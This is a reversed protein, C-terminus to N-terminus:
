STEFTLDLEIQRKNVRVQPMSINKSFNFGYITPQIQFVNEACYAELSSSKM